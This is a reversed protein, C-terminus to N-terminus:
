DLIYKRGDEKYSIMNSIINDGKDIINSIDSRMIQLSSISDDIQDSSKKAMDVYNSLEALLSELESKSEDFESMMDKVMDVIEMVREESIEVGETISENKTYQEFKKIKFHPPNGGMVEEKEKKPTTKANTGNIDGKKVKEAKM